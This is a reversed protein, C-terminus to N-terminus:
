GQVKQDGGGLYTPNIPMLWKAQLLWSAPPSQPSLELGWIQQQIVRSVRLHSLVGHSFIHLAAPAPYLACGDQLIASIQDRRSQIPPLFMVANTKM